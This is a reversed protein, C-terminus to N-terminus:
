IKKHKTFNKLNINDQTEPKQSFFKIKRKLYRLFSFKSNRKLYRSSMENIPAGLLGERYSLKSSMIFARSASFSSTFHEANGNRM